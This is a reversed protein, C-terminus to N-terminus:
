LSVILSLQNVNLTSLNQHICQVHDPTMQVKLLGLKTDIYRDREHWLILSAFLWM